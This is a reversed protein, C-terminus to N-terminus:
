GVVAHIRCKERFMGREMGILTPGITFVVGSPRDWVESDEAVDISAATPASGNVGSVSEPRSDGGEDIETVCSSFPRRGLSVVM